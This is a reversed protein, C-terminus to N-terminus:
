EGDLCPWSLFRARAVLLALLLLLIHLCVYSKLDQKRSVNFTYDTADGMCEVLLKLKALTKAKVGNNRILTFYELLNFLKSDAPTGRIYKVLACTLAAMQTDANADADAAADEDADVTELGFALWSAPVGIPRPPAGDSDSRALDMDWWRTRPPRPPTAHKSQM